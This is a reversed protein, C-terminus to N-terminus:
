GERRRNRTADAGGRRNDWEAGDTSIVGASIRFYHVSGSGSWSEALKFSHRVKAKRMTVKVAEACLMMQQKIDAVTACATSM